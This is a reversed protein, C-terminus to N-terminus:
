ERSDERAGFRASTGYRRTTLDTLNWCRCCPIPMRAQFLNSDFRARLDTLDMESAHQEAKAVAGFRGGAANCVVISTTGLEGSIAEVAARISEPDTVDAEAAAFKAGSASLEEAISDATMASSEAEHEQFSHLNRDIVGVSAGLRALHYAYIRGIGRAAGTVLGVERNLEGADTTANASATM